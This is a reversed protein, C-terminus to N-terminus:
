CHACRELWSTSFLKEGHVSTRQEGFSAGAGDGVPEGVAFCLQIFRDRVVDAVLHVASIPEPFGAIPSASICDAERPGDQLAPECRTRLRDPSAEFTTPPSQLVGGRSTPSPWRRRLVPGAPAAPGAEQCTRRGRSDRRDGPPDQRHPVPPGRLLHQRRRWRRGSGRRLLTPRDSASRRHADVVAQSRSGHSRDQGCRPRRADLRQQSTIITSRPPCTDGASGRKGAAAPTLSNAYALRRRSSSRPSPSGSGARRTRAASRPPPGHRPDAIRLRHALVQGAADNLSWNLGLSLGSGALASGFSEAGVGALHGCALM